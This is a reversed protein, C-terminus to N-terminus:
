ARIESNCINALQVTRGSKGAGGVHMKKQQKISGRRLFIVQSNRLLYDSYWDRTQLQFIEECLEEYGNVLGTGTVKEWQFSSSYTELSGEEESFRFLLKESEVKATAPGFDYHKPVVVPKPLPKPSKNAVVSPEVVAAPPPAVKKSLSDDSKKEEPM